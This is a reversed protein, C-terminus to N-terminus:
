VVIQGNNIAFYLMRARMCACVCAEKSTVAREAGVTSNSSLLSANPLVNTPSLVGHDRQPLATMYKQCMLLPLYERTRM